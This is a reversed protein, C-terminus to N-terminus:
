DHDVERTFGCGGCLIKVTNVERNELDIVVDADETTEEGCNPCSWDSVCSKGLNRDVGAPECLVGNVRYGHEHAPKTTTSWGCSEYPCDEVDRGEVYEATLRKDATHTADYLRYYRADSDVSKYRDVVHWWYGEDDEIVEHHDFKWDTM